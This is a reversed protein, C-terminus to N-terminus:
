AAVTLQEKRIKERTPEDSSLIREVMKSAKQVNDHTEGIILVTVDTAAVMRASRLLSESNPSQGILKEFMAM